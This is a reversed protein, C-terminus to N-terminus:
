FLEGDDNTFGISVKKMSELGCFCVLLPVVSVVM